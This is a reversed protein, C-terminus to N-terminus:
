RKLAGARSERRRAIDSEQYERIVSNLEESLAGNEEVYAKMTASLTRPDVREVIIHGLGEDRLVELFDLGNEALEAESRKSYVTKTSLSFSYGGTSIRPCDDDVMQDILEAKATEIAANNVKVQAALSEKRELLNQYERVRDLLEM